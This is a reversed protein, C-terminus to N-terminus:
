LVTFKQARTDAVALYLGPSLTITSNGAATAILAGTIDYVSLSAHCKASAGTVTVLRNDSTNDATATDIDSSLGIFHTFTDRLTVSIDLDKGNFRVPVKWKNDWQSAPYTRKMFYYSPKGNPEGDENDNVPGWCQEGNDFKMLFRYRTDKGWSQTSLRCKWTGEWQGQGTYTLDAVTRNDVCYFLSLSKVERVTAVKGVFDLLIAYVADTSVSVGESGETLRNDAITYCTGDDAKISLTRGPLLRAFAEFCGASVRTCAVSAEDALADGEISVGSPVSSDLSVVSRVVPLVVSEMVAYGAANPHVGDTTYAPNLARAAGYVMESYYDVYPISNAEAYERIRSNLAEIKDPADKISPNWNFSAAPLVSALIVKINNARALEVMSVINGFTRDPNYPYMNEAVDNTGGNIVVAAPHLNIVDERFRMQFQYTTQGSIGRGIFDNLSFFDPSNGVWFDTISNGLFVVRTGSNPQSAIRKNANEYRAFDAVDSAAAALACGSAVLGIIFKFLKM